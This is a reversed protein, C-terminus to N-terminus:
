RGGYGSSGLFSGSKHLVAHPIWADEVEDATPQFDSHQFVSSTCVHGQRSECDECAEDARPHSGGWPISLHKGLEGSLLRALTRHCSVGRPTRVTTDQAGTNRPGRDSDGDSREGRPPSPPFAIRIIAPHGILPYRKRPLRPSQFDGEEYADALPYLTDQTFAWDIVPGNARFTEVQRLIDGVIEHADDSNAADVLIQVSIVPKPGPTIPLDAPEEDRQGIRWYHM